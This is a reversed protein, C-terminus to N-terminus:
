AWCGPWIAWSGTSMTSSPVIPRARTRGSSHLLLLDLLLDNFVMCLTVLAMIPQLFALILTAFGTAPHPNEKIFEIDYDLFHELEVAIVIFALASLLVSSVM